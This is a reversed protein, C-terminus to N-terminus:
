FTTYYSYSIQQYPSRYSHFLPHPLFAPTDIEVTEFTNFPRFIYTFFVRSRTKFM